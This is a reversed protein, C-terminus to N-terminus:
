RARATTCSCGYRGRAAGGLPVLPSLRAPEAVVPDPAAGAALRGALGAVTPEDLLARLLVDFPFRAAEPLQERLQGVFRAALLSNGGADFFGLERAPPQGGLVDHWLQAIRQEVGARPPETRGDPTATPIPASELLRRRDVKGNATLPLAEVLRVRAPVMYAPLRDAVWAVVDAPDVTGAPRHPVMFAVLARELVDDGAALVVCASVAPHEGLM